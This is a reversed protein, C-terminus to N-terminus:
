KRHAPPPLSFVGEVTRQSAPWKASRLLSLVAEDCAAVGSGERIEATGVGGHSDTSVRYRLLPKARRTCAEGVRSLAKADFLPASAAASQTGATRSTLESEAAQRTADM